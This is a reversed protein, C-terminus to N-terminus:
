EDFETVLLGFGICMTILAILFLVFSDPAKIMMEVITGWMGGLMLGLGFRNWAKM